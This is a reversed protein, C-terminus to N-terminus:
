FPHPPSILREDLFIRRLACVLEPPHLYHAIYDITSITGIDGYHCSVRRRELGPYHAETVFHLGDSENSALIVYAFRVNRFVTM